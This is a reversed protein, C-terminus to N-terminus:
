DGGAVEDEELETCGIVRVVIGEPCLEQDDWSSAQSQQDIVLKRHHLYTRTEAKGQRERERQDMSERGM